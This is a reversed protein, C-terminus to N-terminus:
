AHGNEGSRAVPLIVTFTSGRGYESEVEIRGGQREVLSKTLALGLGSGEHRRAPGSELQEYQRFLRPLDAKKIGVGTDKVRVELGSGDRAATIEVAGGPNTFKVANSLLNYCVRKFARQDLTVTAAEPSAACRVDIRKKQAIGNIVACVERIAKLPPFPEPNLELKGAEIKALDIVDNILQLLHRASNYVDGLYEKQKENLPGPKEDLLVESFGLICNLPTRLEHSMGALFDPKM